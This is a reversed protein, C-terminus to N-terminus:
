EPEDITARMRAPEVPQGPPQAVRGDGGHQERDQGPDDNPRAAPGPQPRDEDDAHRDTDDIKEARSQELRPNVPQTGAKGEGIDAQQNRTLGVARGKGRVVGSVGEGRRYHQSREAGAERPDGEQHRRHHGEGPDVQTHM